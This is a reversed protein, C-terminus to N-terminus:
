AASASWTTRASAGYNWVMGVLIGAVAALEWPLGHDLLRTAVFVNAIAGITCVLAFSALGIPWGWGRRQRDPYTLLNNIAYNSTIATLTAAIHAPLFAIGSLGFLLSLVTLHVLLGVTGVAAFSLIRVPIAHGIMKDALMMVYDWAVRPSLKSEGNERLSFLLPLERIRLSPGATLVIDLMVKFGIASLDPACRDIVERRLAFFGSMPDSLEVGAVSRALWTAVRSTTVRSRAWDGLSGGEVHRSGVVLDTEGGRLVRLMQALLAPDHQLDADMVAVFPASSALMGELSASALGRRGIRRIVRIRPDRAHLTRAHEATGDPSDDDVVIMEWRIGRLAADVRALLTALNAKENFTPVIVALEVPAHSPAAPVPRAIRERLPPLPSLLDSARMQGGHISLTTM